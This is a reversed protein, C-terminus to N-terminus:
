YNEQSFLRTGPTMRIAVNYKNKLKFAFNYQILKQQHEQNPNKIVTYSSDDETHFERTLSNMCISTQWLSYSTSPVSELNVSCESEQFDLVTDIVPAIMKRINPSIISIDCIGAGLEQTIM